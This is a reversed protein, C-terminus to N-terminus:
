ASEQALSLLKEVADHGTKGLNLSYENVYLNIHSKMVEPEMEQAHERVFPQSAEPHAFAYAVSRQMIRGLKELVETGLRKKAIIAGLPIPLKTQNEWYEGLDQVCKLGLDQYTFRNEHIILGAIARGELVPPMIEHFVMEERRGLEPAFFDLLLNATTNRGPIAVPLESAKIEEISLPKKAILLPGCNHGLASGANLLHYQEQIGAFANYSVKIMDLEEKQALTNLAAIDALTVEFELGETDIRGHVMADFM